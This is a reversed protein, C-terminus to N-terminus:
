EPVVDVTVQGVNDFEARWFAAGTVVVRTFSGTIVHDGPHLSRGHVALLRSLSALSAFPDDMDPQMPSRGVETQGNFVRVATASLGDGAVAAPNPPGVVIGWNGTGDALRVADAADPPVRAQNIECAPAVAAVAARATERDVSGALPAGLVLCLEPELAYACTGPLAVTTGSAFIRSRLIYGFSCRM